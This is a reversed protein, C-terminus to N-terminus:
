NGAGIKACGKRVKQAGKACRAGKGDNIVGASDREIFEGGACFAVGPQLFFISNIVTVSAIRRSEVPRVVM